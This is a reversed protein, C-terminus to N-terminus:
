SSIKSPCPRKRLDQEQETYLYENLHFLQGYRSMYLRLDYLGAFQYAPLDPQTAYDMLLSSRILLLSGFDFDDRISGTQYDIVPHRVTKGDEVSYHDAYLWAAGSDAAARLLRETAYLGLTLPTAKTLLMAFEATTHAAITKITEVSQLRGVTVATCGQPILEGDAAESNQLLYIHRIAKDACLQTITPQITQWHDCPLFCDIKVRM